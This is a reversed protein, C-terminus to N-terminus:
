VREDNRTVNKKFIFIKFSQNVAGSCFFVFVRHLVEFSWLKQEGVEKLSNRYLADMRM